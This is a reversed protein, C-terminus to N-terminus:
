LKSPPSPNGSLQQICNAHHRAKKLIDNFNHDVVDVKDKIESASHEYKEFSTAM